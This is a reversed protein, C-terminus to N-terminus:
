LIESHVRLREHQVAYWRIAQQAAIRACGALQALHVEPCEEGTPMYSVKAHAIRNRTSSLCSAFTELGKLRDKENSKISVQHLDLFAPCYPQLELPDCCEIVTLKLVERDKRSAKSHEGFLTELESIYRADPDLARASQLKTRVRRTLDERLVSESVHELVKAFGLIQFEPDLTTDARNYLSLLEAIGAGSLLPRLRPHWSVHEDREDEGSEFHLTPRPSRALCVNASASLEFLLSEILESMEAEPPPMQDWTIEIFRDDDLVPPFFHKEWDGSAAVLFGFITLGSTLKITLRNGSRTQVSPLGSDSLAGTALASELNRHSDLDNAVVRLLFRKPTWCEVKNVLRSQSLEEAFHLLGGYTLALPECDSRPVTLCIETDRCIPDDVYDAENFDDSGPDTVELDEFADFGPSKELLRMAREVEERLEPPNFGNM